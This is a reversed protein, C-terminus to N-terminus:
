RGSGGATSYTHSKGGMTRARWSIKSISATGTINSSTYQVQGAATVSFTIGSASPGPTGMIVLAWANSTPKYVLHFTGSTLIETAGIGTTVRQIFFDVVAQSVTKSTFTLGDINAAVAVNNVLAFNKEFGLPEVILQVFRFFELWTRAIIGSSDTVPDRLPIELNQYKSAM